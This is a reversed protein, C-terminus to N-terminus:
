WNSQSFDWNMESNWEETFNIGEQREEYSNAQGEQLEEKINQETEEDIDPEQPAPSQSDEEDSSQGGEPPTQLMALLADIEKKLQEADASHGRDELTACDHELLVSKAALLVEISHAVNEPKAFDNGLNYIMSLALNIRTACEARTIHPPKAHLADEYAEMAGEYDRRQYLKNGENYYFIYRCFLFIFLATLLIFIGAFIKRKM